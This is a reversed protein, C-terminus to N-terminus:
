MAHRRVALFLAARMRAGLFIGNKLRGFGMRREDPQLGDSKLLTCVASIAPLRRRM